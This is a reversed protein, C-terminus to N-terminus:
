EGKLDNKCIGVYECFRCSISEEKDPLIDELVYNEITRLRGAVWNLQEDTYTVQYAKLNQTGKCLYLFMIKKIGISLSYLAGQKVHDPLPEIMYEFDKPNITKFEFLMPYGEFEIAGDIMASIPFKETFRHDLFKIEMPPASHEEIIEVGDVGFFPLEEKPLLIGEMKMFVDRQIWEHLQTGVQLIRQSRPYYKKNGKVGKLFYYILRQCKSFQSPRFASRTEREGAIAKDVLFSDIKDLFKEEITKNAEKHEQKITKALNKLSM